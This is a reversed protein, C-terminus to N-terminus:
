TVDREGLGDGDAPLCRVLLLAGDVGGNGTRPPLSLAATEAPLVPRLM